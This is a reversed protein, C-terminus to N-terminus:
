AGSTRTPPSTRCTRTTPPRDYPPVPLSAYRPDDGPFHPATPAYLIFWPAGGDAFEIAEDTLIESSVGPHQSWEGDVNVVPDVETYSSRGEGLCVWRDFEPRPDCPWSNLYKGSLMTRYGADHLAQVITPKELPSDNLLVGHHHQYLGTLISARSPCCLPSNVYARRFLVGRGVIERYVAPMLEPTFQSWAQDDTVILLINPRSGEGTSGPDDTCAAFLALALAAPILTTRLRLTLGGEAACGLALGVGSRGLRM